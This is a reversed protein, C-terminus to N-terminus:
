EDDFDTVVRLVSISSTSRLRLLSTSCYKPCLRLGYTNPPHQQAQPPGALVATRLQRPMGQLSTKPPQLRPVGFENASILAGIQKLVKLVGFKWNVEYKM